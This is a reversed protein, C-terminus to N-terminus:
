RPEEQQIIITFSTGKGSCSSCEITGNLKQTVLSFVISLGLGTGGAHRKTAFFPQYIRALIEPSMGKGDDSFLIAVAAGRRELSISITGPTDSDYAHTLSNMILNTIVQAFAGPYGIITIAEPCNVAIRIKTKKISPSVSQLIEDLYAGAEFVRKPEGSQDVSLQKFSSILKSARNLNNLIIGSAERLDELFYAQKEDSLTGTRSADIMESALDVLHSAATVGIGLPTNVEHAVGAVLGGLAAMKESEILFAQMEKLKENTLRLERNSASLDANARELAATRESVQKELTRNLERLQLEANKRSSIDVGIGVFYQEKELELPCATFYYDPRSGDKCQLNAEAKGFGKTTTDNLGSVIAEQSGPDDKFWDMLTKTRMEDPSYGTLTEHGKNWYTLRGDSHYLYLIGPVSDILAKQFSLTRDLEKRAKKAETIDIASGAIGDIKGGVNYLPVIYNGLFLDGLVHDLQVTEGQFAREIGKIIDPYDKYMEKASLGVVQGPRLGLKLLGQGESMVFKWDLDLVYFIMPMNTILKIFPDFPILSSNGSPEPM